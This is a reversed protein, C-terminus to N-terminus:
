FLLTVAQPIHTRSLRVSVLLFQLISGLVITQIFVELQLFGIIQAVNDPLFYTLCHNFFILIGSMALPVWQSNEVRSQM